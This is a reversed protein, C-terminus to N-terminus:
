IGNAKVKRKRSARKFFKNYIEENAEKFETLLEPEECNNQIFEYKNALTNVMTYVEFVPRLIRDNYEEYTRCKRANKVSIKINTFISDCYSTYEAQRVAREKYIYKSVDHLISFCINALVQGILDDAVKKNVSNTKLLKAIM